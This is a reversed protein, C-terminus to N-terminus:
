LPLPLQNRDQVPGPQLYSTISLALQEAAHERLRESPATIGVRAWGPAHLIADALQTPDLHEM